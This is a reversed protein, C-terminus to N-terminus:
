NQGSMTARIVLMYNEWAPVRAPEPKPYGHRPYHERSEVGRPRPEHTDLVTKWPGSHEAPSSPFADRDQGTKPQFGLSTHSCVLCREKNYTSKIFLLPSLSPKRTRHSRTGRPRTLVVGSCAPSASLNRRERNALPKIRGAMALANKRGFDWTIAWDGLSHVSGTASCPDFSRRFPGVISWWRSLTSSAIM